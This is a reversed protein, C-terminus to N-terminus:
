FGRGFRGCFVERSVGGLVGLFSGQVPGGRSGPRAWGSGPIPGDRGRGRARSPGVEPEPHGM